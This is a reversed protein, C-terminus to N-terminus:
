QIDFINLGTEEDYIRGVEIDSLSIYMECTGSVRAHKLHGGVVDGGQDLLDVPGDVRALAFVINQVM